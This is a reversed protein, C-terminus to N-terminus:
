PTCFAFVSFANSSKPQALRPRSRRARCGRSPVLLFVSEGNSREARRGVESTSARSPRVHHGIRQSRRRPAPHRGLRLALNENFIRKQAAITVRNRKAYRAALEQGEDVLDDAPVLRNLLGM